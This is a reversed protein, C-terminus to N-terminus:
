PKAKNRAEGLRSVFAAHEPSALGEHLTAMLRDYDGQFLAIGNIWLGPFTRARLVGDTEISLERASRLDFWYIRQDKLSLVLYELVGYRAYDARKQHLDFSRSSLAIEVVLEPAGAVYDDETTQSQGGCEPLIRLHLDPQPESDDGLIVTVNDNGEVGPTQSEYTYLLASLAAHGRGHSRRVPSAVYVIGGILEAKFDEPMQEYIRHFEERSM